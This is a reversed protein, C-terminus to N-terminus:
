LGPSPIPANGGAAPTAEGVANDPTRPEPSLSPGVVTADAPGPPLARCLGQLTLHSTDPHVRARDRHCGRPAGPRDRRLAHSASLQHLCPPRPRRHLQPLLQGVGIGAPRAPRDWPRAPRGPDPLRHEHQARGAVARRHRAVARGHCSGARRLSQGAAASGRHGSPRQGAAAGPDAAGSVLAQASGV